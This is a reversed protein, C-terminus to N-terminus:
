IHFEDSYEKLYHEEKERMRVIEEDTSDGYGCLHLIGHVMVRRFEASISVSFLVANKRVSDISIYIEGSIRSEETYDFTIVDTFYNHKLFQRNINLIDADDTFVFEIHAESFGEEM